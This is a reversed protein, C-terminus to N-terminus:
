TDYYTIHKLAKRQHQTSSESLLVKLCLMNYFKHFQMFHMYTYAGVDQSKYTNRCRNIISFHM